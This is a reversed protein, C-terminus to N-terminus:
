FWGACIRKGDIRTQPFEFRRGVANIPALVFNGLAAGLWIEFFFDNNGTLIAVRSRPQLGLASLGNAVRNARLWLEGYSTIRDEFVLAAQSARTEAYHGVADFILRYDSM